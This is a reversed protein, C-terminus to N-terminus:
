NNRDNKLREKVQNILEISGGNKVLRALLMIDPGNKKLYAIRTNWAERTKPNM